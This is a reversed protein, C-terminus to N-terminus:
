NSSEDSYKKEDIKKKSHIRFDRQSLTKNM